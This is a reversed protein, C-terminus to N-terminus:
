GDSSTHLLNRNSRYINPLNLSDMLSLIRDNASSVNNESFYWNVTNELERGNIKKSIKAIKNTGINCGYGMIGALFTKESPKPRNYKVQWHEFTDLFGSANNITNLIELLSIYEKQPFLESLHEIEDNEVKPTHLIFTGDKRFKVNENKGNIINQNTRRYAEDVLRELEELVAKFSSFATLDARKLFEKLKDRWKAKSIMYEDLPRYKYSYRLNITGAKIAESLHRFLLSKYLSIRFKGQEDFILDEEDVSLFKSPANKDINGDKEKFYKVAEMLLPASTEKAFEIHKVIESVRNQLKVSKAELHDYYTTDKNINETEKKYADVRIKAEIRRKKNETLLSDIREVKEDNSLGPNKVVQEIMSFTLYGQDFDDFIKLLPKNCKKRMDYYQEKDERKASNTNSLVSSLFSDILLDQLSFFQHVVFAVLHLYRSENSRRSVQFIESRIVSLAYYKIGDYSLNLSEFTHELSYFLKKLTLLDEINAKVKKPKTSQNFKKLLTLKYRQKELQVDDQNEKELLTDLIKRSKETLSKEIVNSLKLKHEKQGEVILNALINYTPIEIKNSALIELMRLLILKPRLQSRITSQIERAITQKELEGFERIGHYELIIKKHRHYLFKNYFGVKIQHFKFALRKAVFEIDKQHFRRIFFRRTARFYGLMVIFCVKNTPTRLTDVIEEIGTSINFFKKRDGSSFIPPNEFAKQEASNFIRMKPMFEGKM